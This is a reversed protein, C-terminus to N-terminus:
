YTIFLCFVDPNQMAAAMNKIPKASPIYIGTQAMATALAIILAFSLLVKRM